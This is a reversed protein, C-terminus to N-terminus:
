IKIVRCPEGAKAAPAFPARILLAQSQALVSLMSSDQVAFPRAWPLGDSHPELTARLFDQRKDNAKLDVALIAPESRDRGAELDGVLARLLPTLFMLSCVYSAVPNGPLGLIRMPLGANGKFIGFMMPKGPRMAIRWFDLDLGRTKLMAQVLDHDGVSAGGSTVLVDLSLALGREFMAELSDITDAAIGLDFVEAGAERALAAISLTNSSIIQDPGPMGGPPVLEDGTAVIGIRPRSRVSIKGHNMAAALALKAADLRTGAVLLPDDKKFDIGAQRIHRGETIPLKVTLTDGERSTDEQIVVIDAGEPVPAGTFIRVCTGREVKGQYHRGAASEGVIKLPSPADVVDAARAAYGDMASAAFPPQTRTARLTNALTLGGCQALPLSAAATGVGASALIRALADAVPLLRGEAMLATPARRAM